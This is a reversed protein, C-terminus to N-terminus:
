KHITVWEWLIRLRHFYGYWDADNLLRGDYLCATWVNHLAQYGGDSPSLLDREPCVILKMLEHDPMKALYLPEGLPDYNRNFLQINDQHFNVIYPFLLYGVRDRAPM